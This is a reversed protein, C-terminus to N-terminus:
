RNPVNPVGAGSFLQNLNLPPMVQLQHSTDDYAMAGLFGNTTDVIYVGETLGQQLEGPILLYDSPRHVQAQAPSFHGVYIFLLLANLGILGWLVSSKM